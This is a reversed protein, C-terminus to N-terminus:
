KVSINERNKDITVTGIGKVRSLDQVTKFEGNQKRDSVISNAKSMGVGNMATAIEEASATNINIAKAVAISTFFSLVLAIILRNFNKM